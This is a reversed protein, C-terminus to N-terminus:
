EPSCWASASPAAKTTCELAGVSYLVGQALAAMLLGRHRGHWLAAWAEEEM